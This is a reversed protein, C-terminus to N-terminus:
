KQAEVDTVTASPAMVTTSAGKKAFLGVLWDEARLLLRETRGKKHLIIFFTIIVFVGTIPACIKWFDAETRFKKKAPEM